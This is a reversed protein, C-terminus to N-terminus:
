LRFYQSWEQILSRHNLVKVKALDGVNCYANEKFPPAKLKVRVQAQNSKQGDNRDSSKSSVDDEESKNESNSSKLSPKLEANSLQHISQVVGPLTQQNHYLEVEATSDTGVYRLDDVNIRFDVWLNQCDLVVLLPQNAKAVEGESALVDLVKGRLKPAVKVFQNESKEIERQALQTSRELQRRSNNLNILANQKIKENLNDLESSGKQLIAIDAKADDIEQLKLQWNHYAEDLSMKPIFDLTPNSGGEYLNKLTRYKAQEFEAEKKLTVIKQKLTVIKQALREIETRDLDKRSDIASPEFMSNSFGQNQVTQEQLVQGFTLSSASAKALQQLSEQIAILHVKDRDLELKNGILITPNELPETVTFVSQDPSVLSGQGIVEIGSVQGSFPARILVIHGATLVNQVVLKNAREVAIQISWLLLGTGGILISTAGAIRLLYKRLIISESLSQNQMNTNSLQNLPSKKHFLFYSFVQNEM